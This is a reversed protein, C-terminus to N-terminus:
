YVWLTHCFLLVYRKLILVFSLRLSTSWKSALVSTGRDFFKFVNQPSCVYDLRMRNEDLVGIRALRRNLANGQFLRKPDKAELRLLERAVLRAKSLVLSIRWVERTNRLGHERALKLDADLPASEFPYRPVPLHVMGTIRSEYILLFRSM